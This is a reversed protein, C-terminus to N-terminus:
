AMEALWASFVVLLLGALQVFFPKKSEEWHRMVFFIGIPLVVNGLLWFPNEQLAIGLGILGIV